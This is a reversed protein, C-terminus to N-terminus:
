FKGVSRERSFQIQRELSWIRAVSIHVCCYHYYIIIFDKREMFSFKEFAKGGFGALM